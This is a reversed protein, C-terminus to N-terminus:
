FVSSVGYAPRDVHKSRRLVYTTARFGVNRSPPPPRRVWTMRHRGTFAFLTPTLSIGDEEGLVRGSRGREFTM